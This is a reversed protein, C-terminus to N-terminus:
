AEGSPMIDTDFLPPRKPGSRMLATLEGPQAGAGKAAFFAVTEDRELKERLAAEVFLELTANSTEVSQFVGQMVEESVLTKLVTKSM